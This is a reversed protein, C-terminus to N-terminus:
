QLNITNVAVAEAVVAAANGNYLAFNYTLAYVFGYGASLAGMEAATFSGSGSAAVEKFLAHGAVDTIFIAHKSGATTVTWTVNLAANRPVNANAAPATLTLQGPVTISRTASGDLRYTGVNFTVSQSSTSMGILATPNAPDPHLYTVSGSATTKGLTYVTSGVTLTVTGQDSGAPNGFKAAAANADTVVVGIPTSIAVSTRVVACVNTPTFGNYSPPNPSSPTAPPQTPPPTTVAEDKKCGTLALVAVLVAISKFQKM